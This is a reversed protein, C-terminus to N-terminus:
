IKPESLQIYRITEKYLEQGLANSHALGEIVDNNINDKHANKYKNIAEQLIGIANNTKSYLYWSQSRVYNELKKREFGQYIAIAIGLIGIGIGIIDM